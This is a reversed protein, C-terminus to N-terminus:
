PQQHPIALVDAAMNNHKKEIEGGSVNLMMKITKGIWISEKQPPLM